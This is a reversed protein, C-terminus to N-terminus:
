NYMWFLELNEKSIKEVLIDKCEIQMEMISLDMNVKYFGTEESECVSIDQGYYGLQSWKMDRVKEITRWNKWNADTEYIVKYCLLFSIKWCTTEDRDVLLEVEDGFYSAKLDLIKMDTYETEDIKKQIEGITM